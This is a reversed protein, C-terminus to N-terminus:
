PLLPIIEVKAFKRLPETSVFISRPDDTEVVRFGQRTISVWHGITKLGANNQELKERPIKAMEKEMEEPMGPEFHSVIMFLM